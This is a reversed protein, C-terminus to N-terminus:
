ESAGEIQRLTRELAEPDLAEARGQLVEVALDAVTRAELLRSLPTEIHFRELIGALIRAAVLSHGGLEVFDDEVGVGDIELCEEWIATIEREVQDRPGVFPTGLAPRSRPPEPLRQRDVKGNLTRPLTPMFVFTRPIMYSPLRKALRARLASMSPTAAGSAVVYAVLYGEGNSDRGALVFAEDIEDLAVLALEVEAIEVRYGRIKVQADKRGLHFLCGNADLRGVDGTLYIREKGGAPDPLFAARTLEPRRWYGPSLYESQVAIEGIEGPPVPQGADDLILIRKRDVAHGLPVTAGEVATDKDVFYQATVRTETAGFANQLVCDRSFRSKYLDVDRRTVPEGSLSLLRLAPLHDGASLAAAFQRFASVSIDCITIRRDELWPGLAALGQTQPDFLHVSAGNLLAGFIPSVSASFSCSALLSFRDDRSIRLDLTQRRMDFLVNRHSQPVGKPQGTSGSTYMLSCLTEPSISVGPHRVPKEIEVADLDIVPVVPAPLGALGPTHRADTVIVSIQADDLVHALRDAPLAPDLPVYIKGAKLAGLIAAVMRAGHGLALGVTEERTPSHALLRHAIHDATQDLQAYTLPGAADVVAVRDPFRAAHAEFRDVLSGEVEHAEFPTVRADRPLEPIPM